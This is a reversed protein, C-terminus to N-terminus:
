PCTTPIVDIPPCGGPCFSTAMADEARKMLSDWSAARPAPSIPSSCQPALAESTDLLAFVSQMGHVPSEPSDPQACIPMDIPLLPSMPAGPDHDAHQSKIVRMLAMLAQVEPSQRKASTCNGLKKGVLSFTSVISQSFRLAEADSIGVHVELVAQHLLKSSIRSTRAAVQLFFPLYPAVVYEFDHSLYATSWAGHPVHARLAEAYDAVDLSNSARSVAAPAM